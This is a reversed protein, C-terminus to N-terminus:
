LPLRKFHSETQFAIAAWLIKVIREISSQFSEQRIMLVRGDLEVFNLWSGLEKLLFVMM